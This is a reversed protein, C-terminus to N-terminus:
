ALFIGYKSNAEEHSYNISYSANVAFYNGKGWLGNRAYNCNM